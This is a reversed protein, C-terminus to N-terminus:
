VTTLIKLLNDWYSMTHLDNHSVSPKRVGDLPGFSYEMNTDSEAFQVLAM